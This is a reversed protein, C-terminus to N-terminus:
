LKAWVGRFGLGGVDCGGGVSGESGGWADPAEDDLECRRGGPGERDALRVM